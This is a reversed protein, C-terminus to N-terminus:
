RWLWPQDTPHLSFEFGKEELASVVKDLNEDEFYIVEKDSTLVVHCKADVKYTKKVQAEASNDFSAAIFLIYIISAINKM